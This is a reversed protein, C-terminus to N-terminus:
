TPKVQGIVIQLYDLSSFDVFPTLFARRSLTVGEDELRAVTGIPIGPPYVGGEYGSTVVEDGVAVVAEADFLDLRLENGGTGEAVGTEGNTALRAAVASSPDVLLLVRATRQSVAVVRGVLGAGSIVPMDKRIGQAAGRDIFVTHEFNSPGVGTVRATVTKLNLRQSLALLARLEENERAIDAVQRERQKLLANQEQLVRIQEKLSGVQTFGAFFDGIPRVVRSLGDQLPGVVTMIGRGIADLPGDGKSRFDITVLVLSAALLLTVLLRARRTRDFIRM